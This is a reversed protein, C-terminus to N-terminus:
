KRLFPNGWITWDCSNDNGPEAILELLKGGSIKLDVSMPEDAAIRQGSRWLINGDLRIIFEAGDGCAGDKVLVETSFLSYESNLEYVLHSPAHAFLGHPFNRGDSNLERGMEVGSEDGTFIGKGLTWYGVTESTLPLDVLYDGPPTVEQTATPLSDGPTATPVLDAVMAAIEPDQPFDRTIITQSWNVGLKATYRNYTLALDGVIQGHEGATVVYTSGIIYPKDIRTHSHGGILVDVPRNADILQKALIQDMEFGNHTLLIVVDAKEENKVKDYAAIIKPLPESFCVHKSISTVYAEAELAVGGAGIVGVRVQPGGEAGMVFMAYPDTLHLTSCKKDENRAQFNASIIKLPPAMELIQKFRTIGMFLEHNGVITADVGIRKYFELVTAGRSKSAAMSGQLWDGADLLLTNEDGWRNRESKVFAALRAAGPVWNNGAEREVLEGHFDNLHLVHFNVIGVAPFTVVPTPKDPQSTFVRPSSTSYIAEPSAQLQPSTVPACASIVLCCLILFWALFSKM